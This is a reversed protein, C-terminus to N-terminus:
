KIRFKFVLKKYSTINIFYQLFNISLVISMCM